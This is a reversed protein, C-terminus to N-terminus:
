FIMKDIIKRNNFFFTFFFVFITVGDIDWWLWQAGSVYETTLLVAEATRNVWSSCRTVEGSQVHIYCTPSLARCPSTFFCLWNSPRQKKQCRLTCLYLNTILMKAENSKNRGILCADLNLESLLLGMKKDGFVFVTKFTWKESTM